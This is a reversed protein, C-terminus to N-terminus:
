RMRWALALPPVVRALVQDVRPTPVKEQGGAPVTVQGNVGRGDGSVCVNEQALCDKLTSASAQSASLWFAALASVGLALLWKM